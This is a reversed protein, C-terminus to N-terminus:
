KFYKRYRYIAYLFAVLISILFSALYFVKWNTLSSFLLLNTTFINTCFAVTGLKFAFSDSREDDGMKRLLFYISFVLTLSLIILFFMTLEIFGEGKNQLYVDFYKM